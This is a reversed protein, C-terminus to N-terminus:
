KWGLLWVSVTGSHHICCICNLSTIAIGPDWIWFDWCNKVIRFGLIPLMEIGPDCFIM